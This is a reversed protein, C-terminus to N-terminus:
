QIKFACSVPRSVINYFYCPRKDSVFRALISHLIQHVHQYLSPSPSSLTHSTLSRHWTLLSLTTLSLSIAGPATGGPEKFHPYFWDPFPNIDGQHYILKLYAFLAYSLSFIHHNIPKRFPAQIIAHQLSWFKANGCYTNKLVIFCEPLHIPYIM